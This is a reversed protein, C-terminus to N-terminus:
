KSEVAVELKWAEYEEPSRDHSSDCFPMHLSKGCGCKPKSEAAVDLKWAEYEEPSRDHSSDCYPMHLSKGCGCKPKSETAENDTM